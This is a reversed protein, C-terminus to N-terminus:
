HCKHLEYPRMFRDIALSVGHDWAADLGTDALMTPLTLKATKDQAAATWANIGSLVAADYAQLHLDIAQDELGITHAINARAFLCRADTAIQTFTPMHNGLFDPFWGSPLPERPTQSIPQYVALLHIFTYSVRLYLQLDAEIM